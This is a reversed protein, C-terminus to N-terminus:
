IQPILVLSSGPSGESALTDFNSPASTSDPIRLAERNRKTPCTLYPHPVASHPQRTAQKPLGTNCPVPFIALTSAPYQQNPTTSYQIYHSNMMPMALVNFPSFPSKACVENLVDSTISAWCVDAADEEPVSVRQGLGAMVSWVLGSSLCRRM